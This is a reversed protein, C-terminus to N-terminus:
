GQVWGQTSFYLSDSICLLSYVYSVFMVVVVVCRFTGSLPSVGKQVPDVKLVPNTGAWNDATTAVLLPQPGVATVFTVDWTYGYSWKYVPASSFSALFTLTSPSISIQTAGSATTTVASVTLPFASAGIWVVDGPNLSAASGKTVTVFSAGTTGNVLLAPVARRSDTRTVAVAGMTPLRVLAQALSEEGEPNADYRINGTQAGNFELRFYGALNNADSDVTVRQVEPLSPGSSATIVQVEYVPNATYYEVLYGDVSADTPAVLASLQGAPIASAPPSQLPGVGKPTLAAQAAAAAPLAAWSVNLATGTAVTALVLGLRPPQGLVRASAVASALSYGRANYATVRANYLTGSTLGTLAFQLPHTGKVVEFVNITAMVSAASGTTAAFTSASVTFPPIDGAGQVVENKMHAFTVTWAYWNKARSVQDRTAKVVFITPIATLKQVFTQVTEDCRIAPTDYGNLNLTFTDTTAGYQDTPLPAMSTVAVTQVEYTFGGPLVDAAGRVLEVVSMQPKDGTLQSYDVQILGVNGPLGTFTVTWRFGRNYVARTVTVPPVAVQQADILANLVLELDYASIAFSLQPSTRGAFTIAFTGGRTKVDDGARFMTQIRQVEPVNELLTSKYTYSTPDFNLTTDAEVLYATVPLGGDHQPAQFTLSLASANVYQGLVVAQPRDPLGGYLETSVTVARTPPSLGQANVAKVRLTHATAEKLAIYRASHDALYEAQRLTNHYVNVNTLNAVSSTMQPVGELGYQGIFTVTYAYGYFSTASQGDGNRTVQVTDVNLLQNLKAQWQAASAGYTFNGAMDPGLFLQFKAGSAAAAASAAASTARFFVTQVASMGGLQLTGAAVGDQRRTHLQVNTGRWDSAEVTARVTRMKATASKFLIAREYSNAWRFATAGEYGYRAAAGRVTVGTPKVAAVTFEEEGVWVLDGVSLVGVPSVSTRMTVNFGFAFIPVSGNIVATGSYNASLVACTNATGDGCAAVSSVNYSTGQVYLVSQRALAAYALPLLTVKASGPKATVVQAAPVISVRGPLAVKSRRLTGIQLGFTASTATFHDRVTIVTTAVGTVSIATIYTPTGAPLAAFTVVSAAATTLMVRDGIDLVTTTNQAVTFSFGSYSGSTLVVTATFPLSAATEAGRLGVMAVKAVSTLNLLATLVASDTAQHSLPWTVDAGVRLQFHGSVDNKDATVTMNFMPYVNVAVDYGTVYQDDVAMQEVDGYAAPFTVAWAYGRYITDGHAFRTVSVSQGGSAVAPLASVAAEVDAASANASIAATQAGGLYLYFYGGLPLGPRGEVVVTQVEPSGNACALEDNVAGVSVYTGPFNADPSCYQAGLSGAYNQGNLTANQRLLPWDIDQAAGEFWVHLDRYAPGNGGPNRKHEEVFVNKVGVLGQLAGKLADTSVSYPLCPTSSWTGASSTPSGLTLKFQGTGTGATPSAYVVTVVQHASRAGIGLKSCDAAYMRQVNYHAPEALGSASSSLYDVHFDNVPAPSSLRATDVTFNGTALPGVAAAAPVTVTYLYGQGFRPTGAPFTQSTATVGKTTSLDNIAAALDTGGIGWPLLTTQADHFALRWYGNSDNSLRNFMRFSLTRVSAFSGNTTYEVLYSTVPSGGADGPTVTLELQTASRAIASLNAPAAPEDAMVFSLPLAGRGLAQATISSAGLGAASGAYVQATYQAGQQLGGLYVVSPLAAGARVRAVTLKPTAGALPAGRAPTASATMLPLNGVASEFQVTWNYGRFAGSSANVAQRVVTVNGVTSLSQLKARFDAAAEDARFYVNVGSANFDLAFGGFLLGDATTVQVSQVEKVRSSVTAVAAVNGLGPAVGVQVATGSTVAAGSSLMTPRTMTGTPYTTITIGTGLDPYVATTGPAAPDLRMAPASTPANDAHLEWVKAAVNYLVYCPGGGQPYLAGTNANVQRYARRGGAYADSAYDGDCVGSATGSLAIAATPTAYASLSSALLPGNQSTFTVSWTYGNSSTPGFRTVEATGAASLAQVAAAMEDPAADVPVLKSKQKYVLVTTASGALNVSTALVVQTASVAQVKATASAVVGPQNANGRVLRVLDGPALEMTVDVAMAFTSVSKPTAAALLTEMVFVNRNVAGRVHYPTFTVTRGNASVAEVTVEQDGIRVVASPALLHAASASLYAQRTGATVNAKVVAVNTSTPAMKQFTGRFDYRLEFSGGAPQTASAGSTAFSVVAPTNAAVGPVLTAVRVTQTPPLAASAGCAGAYALPAVLGYSADFTVRYVRQTATTGSPDLTVSLKSLGPLEQLKVELELAAAALSVCRTNVNNFALKVSANFLGATDAFTVAQVEAVPSALTVTFAEVPQGNAGQPLVALNSGDWSVAAATSNLPTVTAANVADPVAAPFASVPMGPFGVYSYPSCVRDAPATTNYCGKVRVYYPQGSVLDPIVYTFYKAGNVTALSSNAVSPVIGSPYNNLSSCVPATCYSVFAPHTDYEVEYVAFTTSGNYLNQWYVQLANKSAPVVSVNTPRLPAGLYLNIPNLLPSVFASTGVMNVAAVRVYTSTFNPFKDHTLLAEYDAVGDVFQQKGKVVERTSGQSVQLLPVDGVYSTFTVQFASTAVGAGCGCAGAAKATPGTVAVSGLGPFALLFQQVEYASPAAPLRTTNAVGAVAVATQLGNKCLCLEQVEAHVDLFTVSTGNTYCTGPNYALCARLYDGTASFRSGFNSEYADVYEEVQVGDDMVDLFTVMWVYGREAGCNNQGPESNCFLERYVSVDNVTSLTELAAEMGSASINYDLEGTRQGLFSLVFTGAPNYGPESVVSIVQVDARRPSTQNALVTFEAMPQGSPGGNFTPYADLQVRYYAIATSPDVVTRDALTAATDLKYLVQGPLIHGNVVTPDYVNCVPIEKQDVLAFNVQTCVRYEQNEVM